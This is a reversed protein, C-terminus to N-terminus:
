RDENDGVVLLEVPAAATAAVLVDGSLLLAVGDVGGGDHVDTAVLVVALVGAGDPVVVCWRRLPPAPVVGAALIDAAADETDAAGLGIHAAPPTARSHAPQRFRM